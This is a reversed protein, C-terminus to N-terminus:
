SMQWLKMRVIRSLKVISICFWLNFISYGREARSERNETTAEEIDALIGDRKRKLSLRFEVSEANLTSLEIDQGRTERSAPRRTL